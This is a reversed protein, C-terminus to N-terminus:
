QLPIIPGMTGTYVFHNPNVRSAPRVFDNICEVKVNPFTRLSVIKCKQHYLGDMQVQWWVQQEPNYKKRISPTKENKM